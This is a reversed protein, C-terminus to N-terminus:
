DPASEKQEAAQLAFPMCGLLWHLWCCCGAKSTSRTFDAELLTCAAKPMNPIDEYEVDPNRLLASCSSCRLKPDAVAAAVAAASLKNLSDSCRGLAGGFPTYTDKRSKISDFHM